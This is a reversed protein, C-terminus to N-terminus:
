GMPKTFRGTSDDHRIIDGEKLYVVAEAINTAHDAVRELNRTANILHLWADLREPDKRISQKLEEVVARRHRDIKRDGAIV